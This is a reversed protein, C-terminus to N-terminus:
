EKEIQEASITSLSIPICIVQPEQRKGSHVTVELEITAELSQVWLQKSFLDTKHNANLRKFTKEVVDPNGLHLDDRPEKINPLQWDHYHFTDFGGMAGILPHRPTEMVPIFKEVFQDEIIFIVHKDARM